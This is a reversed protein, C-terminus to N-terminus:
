QDNVQDNTSAAGPSCVYLSKSHVTSFVGEDGLPFSLPLPPVVLAPNRNLVTSGFHSISSIPGNVGYGGIL